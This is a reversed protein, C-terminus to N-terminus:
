SGKGISDPLGSRKFDASPCAHTPSCQLLRYDSADLIHMTHHMFADHYFYPPLICLFYTFCTFKVFDSPFKDFTPSFSFKGFYLHFHISVPFIPPFNSIHPSHSFFTTLFKPPHFRSNEPFLDFQPFEGRLGFFKRFCLPFRM